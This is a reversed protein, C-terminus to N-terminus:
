KSVSVMTRMIELIDRETSQFEIRPKASRLQMHDPLDHQRHFPRRNQQRAPEDHPAPSTRARDM